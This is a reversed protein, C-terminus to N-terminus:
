QGVVGGNLLVVVTGKRYEGVEGFYMGSSVAVTGELEEVAVDGEYLLAM